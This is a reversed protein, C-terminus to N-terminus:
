HELWLVVKDSVGRWQRAAVGYEVDFVGGRLRQWKV